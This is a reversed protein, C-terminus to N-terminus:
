FIKNGKIANCSKCLPQMNQIENGEYNPKNEEAWGTWKSIPIIHDKEFQDQPIEEVIKNCIACQYNYEQLKCTWEEATYSGGIKLKSVRRKQNKILILTRGRDSQYYAREKERLKARNMKNYQKAYIRHEEKHMLNHQKNYRRIEEVHTDRYQKAYKLLKERHSQYHLRVREGM